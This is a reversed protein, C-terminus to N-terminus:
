ERAGEGSGLRFSPNPTSAMRVFYPQHATTVRHRRIFRVSPRPLLSHRYPSAVSSMLFGPQTLPGNLTCPVRIENLSKPPLPARFPLFAKGSYPSRHLDRPPKQVAARRSSSGVPLGNRLGPISCSRKPRAGCSRLTVIGRFAGKAPQCLGAENCLSEARGEADPGPEVRKNSIKRAAGM